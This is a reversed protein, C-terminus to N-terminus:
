IGEDQTDMRWPWSFYRDITLGSPGYYSEDYCGLQSLCYSVDKRIYNQVLIISSFFLLTSFLSTPVTPSPCPPIFQSYCLLIIMNHAHYYAYILMHLILNGTPIQQTICPVWDLARYCGLLNPHPSVPPLNM